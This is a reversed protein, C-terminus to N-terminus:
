VLGHRRVHESVYLALLCGQAHGIKMRRRVREVTGPQIGRCNPCCPTEAAGDSGQWELKRLLTVLQRASPDRM